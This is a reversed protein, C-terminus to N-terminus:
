PAAAEPDPAAPVAADTLIRRAAASWHPDDPDSRVGEHQENEDLAAALIDRMELNEGALLAAAAAADSARREEIACALECQVLDTVLASALEVLNAGFAEAWDAPDMGRRLVGGKLALAAEDVLSRAAEKDFEVM